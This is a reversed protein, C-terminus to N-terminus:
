RAGEWQVDGTLRLGRAWDSANMEKSGDPKVRVLSLAGDAFGISVGDRDARVAGVESPSDALKAEIVTVGKGALLLRCPAEKSSARVRRSADHVALAPVLAVDDKTVKRAYTVGAESQETWDCTGSRMASLADILETAGLQALEYRLQETNKEAVEVSACRCYDGTDLGEEMRMICVGTREDGELIAWQIPAAGRWRPLLSGHINICGYRPVELIQPPLIMGFAAVVVVDPAFAALEGAAEPSRLTDPQLVCLGLEEAVLKVASPRTRSGRGSVADPMTYVAVVEHSRTLARLAPVAFEPTGMFAVRM